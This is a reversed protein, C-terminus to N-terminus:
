RSKITENMRREKGGGGQQINCLGNFLVEVM